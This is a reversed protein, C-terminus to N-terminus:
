AHSTVGLLPERAARASMGSAPAGATMLAATPRPIFDDPTVAEMALPLESVTFPLGLPNAQM